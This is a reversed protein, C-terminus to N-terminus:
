KVCIYYNLFCTVINNGPLATYICRLYFGVPIEGPAISQVVQPVSNHIFMKKVYEKLVLGAGYGLVNDKDVVQFKAYDGLTGNKNFVEGNLLWKSSFSEGIFNEVKIDIFGEVNSEANRQIDLSICNCQLAFEDTPKSIVDLTMKGFLFSVGNVPSLDKDGDNIVVSQSTIDEILPLSSQFLPLDSASVLFTEGIPITQGVYTKEESSVNKIILSM